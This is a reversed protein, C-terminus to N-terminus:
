NTSSSHLSIASSERPASRKSCSSRTSDPEGDGLGIAFLRDVSLDGEPDTLQVPHLLGRVQLYALVKAGPVHKAGPVALRGRISNLTRVLAAKSVCRVNPNDRSAAAFTRSFAAQIKELFEEHHSPRVTTSDVIQQQSV